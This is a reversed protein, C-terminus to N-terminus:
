VMKARQWWESTSTRWAHWGFPLDALQAITSDIKLIAELSVVAAEGEAPPEADKTHFQWAGDDADHTVYAIWDHGQVIKRNVIVAVNPPDTFPWNGSTM